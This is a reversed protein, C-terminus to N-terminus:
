FPFNLCGTLFASIQFLFLVLLVSEGSSPCYAKSTKKRQEAMESTHLEHGRPNLNADWFFSKFLLQNPASVSLIWLSWLSWPSSCWMEPFGRYGQHQPASGTVFGEYLASDPSVDAPIHCVQKSKNKEMIMAKGQQTGPKDPCARWLPSSWCHSMCESSMPFAVFSNFYFLTFSFFASPRGLNRSFAAQFCMPGKFSKLHFATEVKFCQIHSSPIM